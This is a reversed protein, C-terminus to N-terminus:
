ELKLINEELKKMVSFVQNIEEDTIGEYLKEFFEEEKEKRSEFYKFCKETLTIRLVRSDKDDRQLEVLGANELHVALKKVNQRSYGIIKSVETLTPSKVGSRIISILLFWQKTTIETFLKDGANQIKTDLFFIAGFIYSKKEIM